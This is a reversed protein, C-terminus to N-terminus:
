RGAGCRAWLKLYLDEYRRVMKQVSFRAMVLSRAEDALRKALRRDALVKIIADALEGPDGPSVLLGNKQDEILENNGTVDTAIIPLGAASAELLCLPLGEYLSSHVFLDFNSLLNDVDQRYGLFLVSDKLGLREVCASLKAALLGSGAIVLKANPIKKVVAKMAEILTAHDKQPRLVSINGIIITDADFGLEDHLKRCGKSSKVKRTDIGNPITFVKDSITKFTERYYGSIHNAIGVFGNLSRYILGNIMLAKLYNPEEMKLNIHESHLFLPARFMRTGLYTYILPGQGHTHVIHVNESKLIKRIKLAISLDKGSKKELCFYKLGNEELLPILAGKGYILACVMPNFRSKDLRKSIQVSLKEAGGVNLVNIVFLVNLKNVLDGGQTMSFFGDM